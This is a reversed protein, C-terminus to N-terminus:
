KGTEIRYSGRHGSGSVYACNVWVDIANANDFQASRWFVIQGDEYQPFQKCLHACQITIGIATCNDRTRLALMKARTAVPTGCPCWLVRGLGEIRSCRTKQVKRFWPDGLQGAAADANAHSQS